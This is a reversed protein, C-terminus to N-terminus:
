RLRAIRACAAPGCKYGGASTRPPVKFVFVSDVTLLAFEDEDAQGAMVTLYFSRGRLTKRRASGLNHNGAWGTRRRKEFGRSQAM